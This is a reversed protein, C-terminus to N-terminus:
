GPLHFCPPLPAELGVSLDPGCGLLAACKTMELTCACARLCVSLCVCVPVCVPM